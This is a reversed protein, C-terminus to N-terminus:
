ILHMWAKMCKKLAVAEWDNALRWCWTRLTYNKAALFIIPPRAGWKPVVNSVVNEGSGNPSLKMFIREATGSFPQRTKKPSRFFVSFFMQLVYVCGGWGRNRLCLNYRMKSNWNQSYRCRAPNLFEPQIQPSSTKPECFLVGSSVLLM